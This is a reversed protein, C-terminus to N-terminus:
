RRVSQLWLKSPTPLYQCACQRHAPFRRFSLKLVYGGHGAAAHRESLGVSKIAVALPHLRCAPLGRAWERPGVTVGLEDQLPAFIVSRGERVLVTLGRRLLTTSTEFACCPGASLPGFEFVFARHPIAAAVLKEHARSAHGLARCSSTAAPHALRAIRPNREHARARRTAALALARLLLRKRIGGLRM